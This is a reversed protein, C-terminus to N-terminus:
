NGKSGMLIELDRYANSIGNKPDLAVRACMLGALIVCEEDMETADKDINIIAALVGVAAAAGAAAVPLKPDPSLSVNRRMASSVDDGIKRMLDSIIQKNSM